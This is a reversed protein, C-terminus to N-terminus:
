FRFLPGSSSAGPPVGNMREAWRAPANLADVSDAAVWVLWGITGALTGLLGVPGVIVLAASGVLLALRMFGRRALRMGDGMLADAANPGFNFFAFGSFLMVLNTPLQVGSGNVLRITSAIMMTAGVASAGVSAMLSSTSDLPADESRYVVRATAEAPASALEGDASAVLLMLAALAPAM